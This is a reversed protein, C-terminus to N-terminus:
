ITKNTEIKKEDANFGAAGATVGQADTFTMQGDELVNLASKYVAWLSIARGNVSV